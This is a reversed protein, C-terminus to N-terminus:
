GEKRRGGYIQRVYLIDNKPIERYNIKTFTQRVAKRNEYKM